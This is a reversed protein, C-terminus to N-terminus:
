FLFNIRVALDDSLHKLVYFLASIQIRVGLPMLADGLLLAIEPKFKQLFDALASITDDVFGDIFV